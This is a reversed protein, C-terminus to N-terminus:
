WSEVLVGDPLVLQCTVDSYLPAVGGLLREMVDGLQRLASPAQSAPLGSATEQVRLLMLNLAHTALGSTAALRGTSLDAHDARAQEAMAELEARPLKSLGALEAAEVLKGGTVGLCVALRRIATYSAGEGPAPPAYGM